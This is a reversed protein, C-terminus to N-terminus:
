KKAGLDSLSFQVGMLKDNITQLRDNVDGTIINKMAWKAWSLASLKDINHWGTFRSRIKIKEM